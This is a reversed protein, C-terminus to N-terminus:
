RRGKRQEFRRQQRSKPRAAEIEAAIRAEEALRAREEDRIRRREQMQEMREAERKEEEPTPERKPRRPGYGTRILDPGASLMAVAAILAYLNRTM